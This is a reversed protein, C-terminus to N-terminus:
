DLDHITIKGHRLRMFKVPEYQPDRDIKVGSLTRKTTEASEERGMVLYRPQKIRQEM